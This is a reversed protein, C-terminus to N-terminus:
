QLMDPVGDGLIGRKRPHTSSISAGGALNRGGQCSETRTVLHPKQALFDCDSVLM